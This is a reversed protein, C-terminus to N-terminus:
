ESVVFTIPYLGLKVTHATYKEGDFKASSTVAIQMFGQKGNVESRYVRDESATKFIGAGKGELPAGGIPIVAGNDQIYYLDYAITASPDGNSKSGNYEFTLVQGSGFEAGNEPHKTVSPDSFIKYDGHPDILTSQGPPQATDVAERGGHAIFYYTIGGAVIVVGAIATIIVGPKVM